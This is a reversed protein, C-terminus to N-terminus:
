IVEFFEWLDCEGCKECYLYETFINDIKDKEIGYVRDNKMNQKAVISVECYVRNSKCKPCIYKM